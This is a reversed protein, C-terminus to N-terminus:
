ARDLNLEEVVAKRCLAQYKKRVISVQEDNFDEPISVTMGMAYTQFNRSKKAEVYIEKVQETM